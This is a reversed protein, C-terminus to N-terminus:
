ENREGPADIKRDYFESERVKMRQAEGHDSEGQCREKKEYDHEYITLGERDVTM